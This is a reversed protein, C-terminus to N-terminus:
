DASRAPPQFPGYIEAFEAQSIGSIGRATSYERLQLKIMSIALEMIEAETEPSRDERFMFEFARDCFWVIAEGGWPPADPVAMGSRIAGDMLWDGLYKYRFSVRALVVKSSRAGFWLVIARRTSQFYDFHTQMIADLLNDFNVVELAAVRENIGSDIESMEQDILAAIIASRDAFYRYITAVPIGSRKSVSTTTLADADATRALEDAAALM